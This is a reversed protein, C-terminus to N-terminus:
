SLKELDTPKHGLKSLHERTAAVAGKDAAQKAYWTSPKLEKEKETAMALMLDLRKVLANVEAEPLPVPKRLADFERSLLLREGERGKRLDIFPSPLDALAWFLNPAGPQQVFEEVGSLAITTIAIGVLSGILTPHENFMRGITFMTQLTQIANDFEGRALEARFRLKV